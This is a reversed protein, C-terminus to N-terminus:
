ESKIQKGSILFGRGEFENHSVAVQYITVKYMFKLCKDKRHVWGELFQFSLNGAAKLHILFTM